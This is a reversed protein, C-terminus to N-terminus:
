NKKYSKLKAAIIREEVSISPPVEWDEIPKRNILDYRSHKNPPALRPRHEQKWTTERYNIDNSDYDIDHNRVCTPDMSGCTYYQEYYKQAELYDNRSLACPYQTYTANICDKKM